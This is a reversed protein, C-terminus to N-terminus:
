LYCYPILYSLLLGAAILAIIAFIALKRYRIPYRITNNFYDIENQISVYNVEELIFRLTEFEFITNPEASNLEDMIEYFNETEEKTELCLNDMQEDAFLNIATKKNDSIGSSWPATPTNLSDITLVQYLKKNM